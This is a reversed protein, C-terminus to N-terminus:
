PYSLWPYSIRNFLHSENTNYKSEESVANCLFYTLKRNSIEWDHMPLFLHIHDAIMVVKLEKIVMVKVEVMTELSLSMWAKFHSEWDYLQVQAWIAKSWNM